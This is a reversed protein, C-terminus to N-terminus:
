RRGEDRMAMLEEHTLRVAREAMEDARAFLRDLAAHAAAMDPQGEPVLRAIPKGHRTIVIQECREVRDLLEALRTKAQYAGVTAAANPTIANMNAIISWDDSWNLHSRKSGRFEIELGVAKRRWSNVTPLRARSVM